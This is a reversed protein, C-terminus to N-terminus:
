DILMVEGNRRVRTKPTTLKQLAELSKEAKSEQFVGLTANILVVIVIIVSEIWDSPSTILSIVAAIILIIVLPDELEKIFKLVISEKKPRELENKKQNRKSIEETTLGEQRTSLEDLVDEIKKNYM